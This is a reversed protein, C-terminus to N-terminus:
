SSKRFWCAKKTSLDSQEINKEDIRDSIHKLEDIAFLAIAKSLEPNKENILAEFIHKEKRSYRKTM